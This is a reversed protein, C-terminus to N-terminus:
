RLGAGRYGLPDLEVVEFGEERLIAGAETAREALRRLENPGVQVCASLPNVRALRVRLIRFGFAQRLRAECREILAAREATVEIGRAIRSSLCPEAPADATELGLAAAIARVDAKGLGAERLPARVRFERAALSGPREAAVDDANEGYALSDFGEERAMAEMVRFLEHKCFFCRDGANAVYQPDDFERTGAVRVEAGMRRAQDLARRLSARPLSPSDAIVGVAADGCVKRALALLCSSDVGGSYAILVRGAEALIGAAREARVRLAEAIGELGELQWAM